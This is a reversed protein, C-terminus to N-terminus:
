GTLKQEWTVAEGQAGREEFLDPLFGTPISLPNLNMKIHPTQMYEPSLSVCGPLLVRPCDQQPPRRSAGRLAEQESALPFKM